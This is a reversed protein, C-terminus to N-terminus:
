YVPFLRFSLSKVQAIVEQTITDPEFWLPKQTDLKGKLPQRTKKDFNWQNGVPKNGDMLVQFRQCSARYFDDM